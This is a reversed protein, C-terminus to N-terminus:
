HFCKVRFKRGQTRGAHHPACSDYLAKNKQREREIYPEDCMCVCVYVGPRYMCVCAHVCM